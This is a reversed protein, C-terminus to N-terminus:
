HGDRMERIFQERGKIIIEIGKKNAAQFKALWWDPDQKTLHVDMGLRDDGWNPMSHFTKRKTIRMIEAIAQEVEEPPLHELVDTSFTYDYYDDPISRMDTVSIEKFWLPMGIVGMDRRVGELTLDVGFAQLGAQRLLKVTLGNGCGIDLLKDEKQATAIVFDALPKACASPTYETRWLTEYLEKQNM